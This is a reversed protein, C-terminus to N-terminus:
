HGQFANKILNIDFAGNKELVEVVDFRVRSNMQKKEKLYFSAGLIIKKQKSYNVSERPLGKKLSRRTKVEVFCICNKDKAIIDIEASKTRYNVELITFGRTQLFSIAATEGRHGLNKRDDPM